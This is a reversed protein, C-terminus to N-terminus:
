VRGGRARTSDLRDLGDNVRWVTTTPRVSPADPRHPRSERRPSRNERGHTDPSGSKMWRELAVYPWKTQEQHRRYVALGIFALKWLLASTLM